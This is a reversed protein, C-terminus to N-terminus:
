LSNIMSVITPKWVSRAWHAHVFSDVILPCGVKLTPDAWHFACNLAMSWISPCQRCLISFCSGKVNWKHGLILQLETLLCYWFADPSHWTTCTWCAGWPISMSRSPQSWVKLISIAVPTKYIIHVVPVNDRARRAAKHILVTPTLHKSVM